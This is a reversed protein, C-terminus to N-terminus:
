TWKIQGKLCKLELIKYGKILLYEKIWEIRDLYENSLKNWYIDIITHVQMKDFKIFLKHIIM